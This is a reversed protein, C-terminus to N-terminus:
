AHSHMANWANRCSSVHIRQEAHVHRVKIVAAVDRQIELTCVPDGCLDLSPLQCAPCPQGSFTVKGLLPADGVHSHPSHHSLQPFAGHNHRLRALSGVHQLRGQSLRLPATVDARKCSGTLLRHDDTTTTSASSTMKVSTTVTSSKLSVLPAPGTNHIRYAAGQPIDIADGHRVSSTTGDLNVLGEGAVVFWHESRRSHKQYSLRQGPRVEITKVKFGNGEALVTYTGWPREAPEAV